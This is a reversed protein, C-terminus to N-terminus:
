LFIRIGNRLFIRVSFIFYFQNYKNGNEDCASGVYDCGIKEYTIEPIEDFMCYYHKWGKKRAVYMKLIKM